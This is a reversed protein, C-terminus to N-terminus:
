CYVTLSNPIPPFGYRRIKEQVQTYVTSKAWLFMSYSIITTMIESSWLILDSSGCCCCLVNPRVFLRLGRSRTEFQDNGRPVKPPIQCFRQGLGNKKIPTHPTERNEYM